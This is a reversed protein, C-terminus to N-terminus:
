GPPDQVGNVADSQSLSSRRQEKITQRWNQRKESSRLRKKHAKSALHQQWQDEVVCTVNCVECTRKAWKEPTDSLDQERLPVLMKAATPSMSVPDPLADSATLFSETLHLAPKVVNLNFTSVDSGDLLFLSSSANAKSLANVLKIRIWRVQRKAYQGTAIRTRDLGEKELAKLEDNSLEKGSLAEAYKRLEKYGISVWIGRTEDISQLHKAQHEQKFANLTQVENLLGDEMMTDVRKSLRDRLKEHDAYVWLVLTPFRMAPGNLELDQDVNSQERVVNRERQEAYLESAKRGTQCYIELSRRIKRRDKPHWREAMAPDVKTLEELLRETPENLIPWTKAPDEVFSQEGDEALQDNILLSQTYYHTGGVLIPLKGRSRIKEIVNLAKKVFMGVVWTDENLGICGLLHHRIGEQESPKIKNTIIPLGDYLQM